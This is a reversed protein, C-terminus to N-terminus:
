GLPDVGILWLHGGALALWAWLVSGVGVAILTGLNWLPSHHGMLGVMNSRDERRLARYLMVAWILLVGFLLVDASRGNSALHALAWIKVSLTMPHHLKSRIGNGPVVAAALLVMAPWMLAVSLHKLGYSPVWLDISVLRAQAYGDTIQWLAILSLVAYALRFRVRGWRAVQRFRWLPAVIRLSHVALFLLLGLVLQTM